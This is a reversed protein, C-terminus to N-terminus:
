SLGRMNMYYLILSLLIYNKNNIKEAEAAWRPSHVGRRRSKKIMCLSLSEEPRTILEDSLGRGSLMCCVCCFFMWAGLAIQVWSRQLSAVTSKLRLGRPWQSRSTFNIIERYKTLLHSFTSQLHNIKNLTFQMRRIQLNNYHRHSLCCFFLL